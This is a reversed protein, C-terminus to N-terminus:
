LIQVKHQGEMLSSLDENLVVYFPWKRLKRENEAMSPRFNYTYYTVQFFLTVEFSSVKELFNMIRVGVWNENRNHEQGNKEENIDCSFVVIYFKM